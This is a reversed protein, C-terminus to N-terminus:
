KEALKSVLNFTKCEKFEQYNKDTRGFNNLMIKSEHFKMVLKQRIKQIGWQYVNQNAEGKVLAFIRNFGIQFTQLFEDLLAKTHFKTKSSDFTRSQLTM